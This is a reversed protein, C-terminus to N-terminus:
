QKKVRREGIKKIVKKQQERKMKMTVYSRLDEFYSNLLRNVSYDRLKEDKLDWLQNVQKVLPILLEKRGFYDAEYWNNWFKDPIEGLKM